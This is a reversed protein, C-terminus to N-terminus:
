KVKYVREGQDNCVSEVALKMSISGRLTHSQWKTIKAISSAATLEFRM